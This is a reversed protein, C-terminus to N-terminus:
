FNPSFIDLIFLYVNFVYNIMNNFLQNETKDYLFKIGRQDTTLKVIFGNNILYNALSVAPFIHGGTGGTAIIINKNKNM